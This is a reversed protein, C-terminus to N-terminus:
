EYNGGDASGVVFMFFWRHNRLGICNSVWPCHHDYKMVCCDCYRCHQARPPLSLSCQRCIGSSMVHGDFLFSRPIGIFPPLMTCEGRLTALDPGLESIVKNKMLDIINDNDLGGTDGEDPGESEVVIDDLYLPNELDHQHRLFLNVVDEWGEYAAYHMPTLNYIDPSLASGHHLLRECIVFDGKFTAMHLATRGEANAVHILYSNSDLLEQFRAYNGENICIFLQRLQRQEPTETIRRIQETTLPDGKPIIGPETVYTATLFGLCLFWLLLDFIWLFPSLDKLISFSDFVVLLLIPIILLCYTISVMDGQCNSILCAGNCAPQFSGISTM